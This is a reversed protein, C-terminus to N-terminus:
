LVVETTLYKALVVIERKCYSNEIYKHVRRADTSYHMAKIPHHSVFPPSPLLPAGGEDICAKTKDKINRRQSFHNFIFEQFRM